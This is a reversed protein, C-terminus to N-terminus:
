HLINICLFILFSYRQKNNSAQYSVANM